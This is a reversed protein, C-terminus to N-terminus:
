DPIRSREFQERWAAREHHVANRGGESRGAVFAWAALLGIIPLAVLCATLILFDAGSIGQDLWDSFGLDILKFGQEALVSAAAIAGIVLLPVTLLSGLTPPKGIEDLGQTETVCRKCVAYRPEGDLDNDCVVCPKSM